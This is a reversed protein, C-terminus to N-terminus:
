ESPHHLAIGAMVLVVGALEQLTPFQGLVLAGIVTATAPLLSLMLAFTNRPLRAM